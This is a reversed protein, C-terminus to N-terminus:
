DGIKFRYRKPKICGLQMFHMVLKSSLTKLNKNYDKIAICTGNNCYNFNKHNECFKNVEQKIDINLTTPVLLITESYPMDFDSYHQIDILEYTENIM